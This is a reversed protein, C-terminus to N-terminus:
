RRSLRGATSVSPSCHFLLQSDANDTDSVHSAIVHPQVTLQGVDIQYADGVDVVAARM